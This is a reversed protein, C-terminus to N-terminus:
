LGSIFWEFVILNARGSKCHGVNNMVEVFCDHFLLRLLKGPITADFDSASSVTDRVLLEVNPCSFSYFDSSLQSASPTSFLFLVILTPLLFSQVLQKM